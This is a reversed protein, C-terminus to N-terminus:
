EQYKEKLLYAPKFIVILENDRIIYHKIYISNLILEDLNKVDRVGKDELVCGCDEWFRVKTIKAKREDDFRFIENITM